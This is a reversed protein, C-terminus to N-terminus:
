KKSQQSKQRALADLKKLYENEIRLLLNEEKLDHLEKDDKKPETKASRQSNKHKTMNKRRKRRDLLGAAGAREFAKAWQWVTSSTSIDFQLATEVTSAKHQKMWNLVSIKFERSYEPYVVRRKLGALGYKQFRHVWLMVTSPKAIGFQKALTPSGVGAFYQHLVRLKFDLDYKVM